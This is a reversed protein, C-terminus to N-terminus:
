AGSSNGTDAQTQSNDLPVQPILAANLVAMAQEQASTAAHLGFQHNQDMAATIVEQENDSQQMSVKVGLQLEQIDLARNQLAIKAEEILLDQQMEAQKLQLTLMDVDHKRQADAAKAQSDMIKAQSDAQKNQLQSQTSQLEQAGQQIIQQAEQLQQGLEQIKRSGQQILTQVQPPLNKMTDNDVPKQLQPPLARELAEAIIEADPIDMARVIEPGAIQMLPPYAQALQQLTAASEARKTTYSPGTTVSVEYTGSTLDFNKKVGDSATHSQNIKAQWATRDEKVLNISRAGDYVKPILDDMIRGGFRMARAMNDQFHFTSVDGERQRANIAVGSKENSEKGLSAPYIGTTNYFNQQAQQVLAMMSSIDARNDARQPLPYQKGDKYIKAPLYPYNKVNAQDWFESYGAIQDPDLIYPAKPALAVMETASNMWYNFQRQASIMSDVLGLYYIKGDIFLSEGSARVYPIYIGPWERQDLVEMGTCKYWMVKNETVERVDKDDITGSPKEKTTGQPTRYLKYTKPKIEWYEAIRVTRDTAWEPTADGISQLQETDYNKEYTENFSDVQMDEVQILYRRDSFDQMMAAPDDYIVLPNPIWQYKIIQDFSKDNEYDTIYRWYGRGGTVQSDACADYAVEAESTSQIARCLDEKIEAVEDQGDEGSTFRIQPMNMRMDNTVQHIFQPIQNYSERPKNQEGFHSYVQPDWQYEGGRRFKLAEVFRKRDDSEADSSLKFNALMRKIVGKAESDAM